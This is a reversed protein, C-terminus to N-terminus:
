PFQLPPRSRLRPPVFQGMMAQAAFLDKSLQDFEQKARNLDQLYFRSNGRAKREDSVTDFFLGLPNDPSFDRHIESHSYQGKSSCHTEKWRGHILANRKSNNSRARGTLKVIRAHVEPHNRLSVAAAAEIMDIQNRFGVVSHFISTALTLDEPTTLSRFLMAMQWEVHSWADVAEAFALLVESRPPVYIKASPENM